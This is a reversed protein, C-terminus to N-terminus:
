GKSALVKQYVREYGEVMKEVIFHEEVHRRCAARDIEGIRGVAEVLGEIGRKKIIWSHGGLFPKVKKGSALLNFRKQDLKIDEEEPEIIFGTVGDKVIEPVSGRNYAVVPTGCAMAEIMVLGFPEEWHIPFLLAKANGLFAYKVHGIMTDLLRVKAGDVYKKVQALYDGHQTDEFGVLTIVGGATLSARIADLAGKHPSYRGMWAFYPAEEPQGVFRCDALNVGNYVVASFHIYPLVVNARKSLAIFTNRSYKKFEEIEGAQFGAGHITSVVPINLNKIYPLFVHELHSHVVDFGVLLSRINEAYIHELTLADPSFITKGQDKLSVGCHQLRVGAFSSDDPVFVVVEHGFNLLGRTLDRVVAKIGIAQDAHFQSWNPVLQAIKM